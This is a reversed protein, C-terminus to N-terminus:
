AAVGEAPAAEAREAEALYHAGLAVLRERDIDPPLPMTMLKDAVIEALTRRRGADFVVHDLARTEQARTLTLQYQLAASKMRRVWRYDIGQSVERTIEHVRQRVIQGDLEGAANAALQANVQEASLGTADLAPLEVVQRALPVPMLTVKLAPRAEISGEPQCRPPEGGSDRPVSSETSRLSPQRLSSMGELGTSDAWQEMGLGRSAREHAEPSNGPTWLRERASRGLGLMDADESGAGLITRTTPSADDGTAGSAGDGSSGNTDHGGIEVLLWAKIGPRGLTTEAQLEAWPNTTVYDLAGSYWANPAVQHAVHYDGLAVYDWGEFQEPPLNGDPRAAYPWIGAFGGHALLVNFGADLDRAPWDGATLAASPLCGIAVDGVRVTRSHHVAVM